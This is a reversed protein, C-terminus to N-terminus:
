GEEVDRKMVAKNTVLGVTRIRKADSEKKSGSLDTHQPIRRNRRYDPEAKLDIRETICESVHARRDPM